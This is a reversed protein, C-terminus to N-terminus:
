GCVKLNPGIQKLANRYGPEDNRKYKEQLKILSPADKKSGFLLNTTHQEFQEPLTVDTWGWESNQYVYKSYVECGASIAVLSYVVPKGAEMDLVLPIEPYTFPDIKTTRWEIMKGSKDPNPFRIHYAKIKTGSRNSAWEDGGSEYISEREVVIVKGDNLQVEEKWKKNGAGCATMALGMMLLFGLEAVQKFFTKHTKM